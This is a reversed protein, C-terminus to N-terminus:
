KLANQSDTFTSAIKTGLGQVLAIIALSIGAAILGYKISSAGSEDHLFQRFRTMSPAKTYVVGAIERFVKDLANVRDCFTPPM